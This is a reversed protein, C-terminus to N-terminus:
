GLCFAYFVNISFLNTHLGFGNHFFISFFNNCSNIIAVTMNETITLKLTNSYSTLVILIMKLFLNM